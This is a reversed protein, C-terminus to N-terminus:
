CRTTTTTRRLLAIKEAVLTSDRIEASCGRSNSDDRKVLLARCDGADRTWWGWHSNSVSAGLDLAIWDGAPESVNYLLSLPRGLNVSSQMSAAMATLTPLQPERAYVQTTTSYLWHEPRRRARTDPLRPHMKQLSTWARSM